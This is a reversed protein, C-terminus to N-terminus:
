PLPPGGLAAFAETHARDVEAPSMRLLEGIEELGLGEVYWLSLVLQLRMPLRGVAASLARASAARTEADAPDFVLAQDQLLADAIRQRADQFSDM